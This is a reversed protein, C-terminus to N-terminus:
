AEHAVVKGSKVAYGRVGDTGVIYHVLHPWLLFTKHDEVSLNADKDPHTHWSAVTDDNDYALIDKGSIEFGNEPDPCINKCEVIEGSRLIFGVREKAGTLKDLLEQM